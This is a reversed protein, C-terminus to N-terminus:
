VTETVKSALSREWSEIAEQPWLKRGNIRLLQPFNQPRAKEWRVLTRQVRQYRVALDASTFYATSSGSM